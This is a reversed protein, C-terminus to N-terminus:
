KECSCCMRNLCLSSSPTTMVEIDSIPTFYYNYANREDIHHKWTTIVDEADFDEGNHFKVDQRLKFLYELGDDSVEFSEALAPVVKGEDNVWVLSNFLQASANYANREATNPLVLSNPFTSLSVILEGKPKDPAEVEVIKEVEVEKVVEVEKEVEVEKIVEVEEKVVVTEIVTVTEPQAAGGCAAILSLLVLTSFIVLIRKM